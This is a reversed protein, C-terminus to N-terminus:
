KTEVKEDFLSTAKWPLSLNFDAALEVTQMKPSRLDRAYLHDKATWFDMEAITEDKGGNSKRFSLKLIDGSPAPGTYGFIIKSSLRDLINEVKGRGAETGGIKWKGAPEKVVTQKFATSGRSDIDIGTVAYRDAVSMLRGERMEAFTKEAKDSNYVDVVYVPDQDDIIAYVIPATDKPNKKKEYLRLHKEGGKTVMRLDYTNKAGVLASKAEPSDHRDALIDKASLNVVASLVSDVTDVDGEVEIGGSNLSWGRDSDVRKAELKGPIKKSVALTFASVEKENLGFLRKDRFYSTKQEFVALQWDPVLLIRNEDAQGDKEILTFDNEGIPSKVGFYADVRKGGEITVGVKRTTPNARAASDLGYDKLIQARKAPTETKLDITDSSVLNGFNKFLSNVVADDAKAKLPAAIEWKSADDSKCLKDALSGCNLVVALAPKSALEPKPSRGFFELRSVALGKLVFVKKADAAAQEERPKEGFQLWYATAGLACLFVALALPKAFDPTRNPSSAAM